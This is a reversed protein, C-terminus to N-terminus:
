GPPILKAIEGNLSLTYIHGANDEAFSAIREFVVGLSREDQAELPEFSRLLAQCFDAYVYRGDLEPLDPDRVVYGGTVACTPDLKGLPKGTREYSFVPPIAGPADVGPEARATGEYAPWGFNAGALQDGDVYNLEEQVSSGVDGVSFGGTERDFSYRWPNRLGYAYIEDRGPKGAFPNDPPISYPLGNGPSPDIRLLKGLLSDLDQAVDSIPELPGGDGTALYLYGDPGSAVLGGWHIQNPHEIALLPRRSALDALPDPGAARTFEDLHLQKDRGAYAVYLHGSRPYDPAFALSLLGGEAETDVRARIDLFPDRALEGDAGLVRITGAREVVYLDREEGPPQSLFVPERAEGVQELEVAAKGILARKGERDDDGSGDCGAAVLALLVLAATFHTWRAPRM